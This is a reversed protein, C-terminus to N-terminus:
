RNEGDVKGGISKTNELVAKQGNKDLVVNNRRLWDEMEEDSLQGQHERAERDMKEIDEFSLEALVDPDLYIIKVPKGDAQQKKFYELDKESLHELENM